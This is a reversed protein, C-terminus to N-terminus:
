VRGERLRGKEPVLEVGLWGTVELLFEKGGGECGEGM